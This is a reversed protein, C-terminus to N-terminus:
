TGTRDVPVSDEAKETEEAPMPPHMRGRALAFRLLKVGKAEAKKRPLGVFDVVAHAPNAAKEPPSTLPDSLARLDETACESVTLAWTGDCRLALGSPSTFLEHAAAATTLAGRDVSLLGEDKSTPSFAQRSPRGDVVFRPNVHRFLLEAPDKLQDGPM